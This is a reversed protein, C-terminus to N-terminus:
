PETKNIEAPVTDIKNYEVDAGISFATTPNLAIRNQIYDRKGIIEKTGVISGENTILYTFKWNGKKTLRFHIEAITVTQNLTAVKQHVKSLKAPTLANIIQDIEDTKAYLEIYPEGPIEFITMLPKDRPKIDKRVIKLSNRFLKCIKKLNSKAQEYVDEAIDEAIKEGMKKLFPKILPSLIAYYAAFKIVVRPDPILGKRTDFNIEIDDKGEDKLEQVIQDTKEWSDFNNKDLSISNTQSQDFQRTSFTIPRDFSLQILTNEPGFQKKQSYYFPEAKLLAVKELNVVEANDLYGIPPLDRRHNVLMRLKLNGNITDKGKVLLDISFSDGHADVSTSSITIKETM